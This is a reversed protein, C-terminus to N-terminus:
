SFRSRYFCFFCCGEKVERGEKRRNVCREFMHHLLRLTELGQLSDSLACAALVCRLNSAGCPVHDSKFMIGFEKFIDASFLDTLHQWSGPTFVFPSPHIYTKKRQPINTDQIQGM